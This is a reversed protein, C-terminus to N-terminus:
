RWLKSGAFFQSLTISNVSAAPSHYLVLNSKLFPYDKSIFSVAEKLILPIKLDLNLVKLIPKILYKVSYIM